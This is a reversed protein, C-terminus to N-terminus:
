ECNPIKMVFCEFCFYYHNWKSTNMEPVIDTSYYWDTIFKLNEVFLFLTRFSRFSDLTYKIKYWGFNNAIFCHIRRFGLFIPFKTLLWAIKNLVQNMVTRNIERSQYKLKLSVNPALYVPDSEHLAFVSSFFQLHFEGRLVKVQLQDDKLKNNDTQKSFNSFNSRWCFEELPEDEFAKSNTSFNTGWAFCTSGRLLLFRSPHLCDVSVLNGGFFVERSLGVLSSSEM